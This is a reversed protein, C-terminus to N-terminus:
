DRPLIDKLSSLLVPADFKVQDLLFPAGKRRHLCGLAAKCRESLRMRTLAQLVILRNRTIKFRCSEPGSRLAPIRPPTRVRQHHATALVPAGDGDFARDM